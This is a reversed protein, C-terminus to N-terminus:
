IPLKDRSFTSLPKNNIDTWTWTQETVLNLEKTYNSCM